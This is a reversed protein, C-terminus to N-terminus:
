QGCPNSAVAVPLDDGGRRLSWVVGLSGILLVIVWWLIPLRSRPLDSM